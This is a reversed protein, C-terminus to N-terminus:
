NKNGFVYLLIFFYSSSFFFIEEEVPISGPEGAQFVLSIVM